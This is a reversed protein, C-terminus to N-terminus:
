ATELDVLMLKHDPVVPKRQGAVNVAGAAAATFEAAQERWVVKRPSLTYPGVNYMTWLPDAKPDFYKRFGSRRRLKDEFRRFYRFTNPLREKMVSEPVGSRSDPDQALIIYASPVARWREVDRGRLLPYILDPELPHKGVPVKIKGIDGLNEVMLLGDPRKGAIRVWYAGNLGGTNSGEWGRYASKGGAKRAAVIAGAPATLWPSTPKGPEIPEAALALRTTQALAQSLDADYPITAAVSSETDRAKQGPSSGAVSVAGDRSGSVSRRDAARRWLHYPVPYTTPQGKELVVTATRNAAGEFPKLESMDDVGLVKLPASSGLRFRRFGDGAGRSKFVTQTIVFGLRGRESLYSDAGAYAFLMAFDKKGGGLRAEHGSLSFLGYKGWLKKTVNRYEGALSEWNIWPPNGAIFDFKGKFLPAFANKLWRAWIGNRNQKELKHIAEYLRRLGEFTAQHTVALERKARNL